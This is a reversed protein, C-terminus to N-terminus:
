HKFTTVISQYTLKLGSLNFPPKFFGHYHGYPNILVLNASHDVTYDDELAVKNFAVNLDDTLRKINLFEGTVGVFGPNFHTMYDALKAPTDRAPDVSVMVIRTNKAIDGDLTEIWKSLTALTTPCVDPCTTFGFFMLTWQNELNEPLFTEGKHDTLEFPRLTRPKDFVIAGNAALEADSLVRPSLIKNLLLGMFLSVVAVIILITKNVGRQQAANLQLQSAGTNM